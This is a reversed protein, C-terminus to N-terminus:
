REIWANAHNFGHVCGGADCERCPSNDRFGQILKIRRKHLAASFWVDVLQQSHINGFKVRKQWDQPCLFVDGNWDIMLSYSPYYCPSQEIRQFRKLSVLGARNTLKLGYEDEAGHWRDRLVYHSEDLGAAKFMDTFLKVQHPGDYLSIVFNTIGAESLQKIQNVTLNDGNSILEVRYRDQLFCSVIELFNKTLLPEGYGAFAIGGDFKIQSLELAIKKCLDPTIHLNQNPYKNEDERPCFVCKRNCLETPNIELYSFMPRGAVFKVDDIYESKRLINKVLSENKFKELEKKINRRDEQSINKVENNDIFEM